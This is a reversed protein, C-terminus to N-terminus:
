KDLAQQSAVNVCHKQQSMSRLNRVRVYQVCAYWAEELICIYVAVCLCVCVYIYICACLYVTGKRGKSCRLSM